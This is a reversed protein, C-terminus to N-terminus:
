REHRRRHCQRHERGYCKRHYQVSWTMKMDSIAANPMNNSFKGDMADEATIFKAHIFKKNIHNVMDHEIFDELKKKMDNVVHDVM